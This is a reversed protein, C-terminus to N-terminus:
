RPRLVNSKKKKLRRKPKLQLNMDSTYTHDQTASVSNQVPSPTPVPTSSAPSFEQIAPLQPRTTDAQSELLTDETLIEETKEVEAIQNPTKAMVQENRDILQVDQQVQHHIASSQLASSYDADREILYEAIYSDRICM